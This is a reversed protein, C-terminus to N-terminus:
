RTTSRGPVAMGSGALQEITNTYSVINGWKDATVLHNTHLGEHDTSTAAATTCPTYPPFPNGAAVPSTLAANGVLCRRTAAFAPDLLGPPVSVFDSDGIYAGRDAFALRSAELYQFLAQVRDESSLNWGSLINLAEGTTLGGSSPPAMGYVDLGRYTVHTPARQPATYNALDAATM